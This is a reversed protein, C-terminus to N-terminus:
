RRRGDEDLLIEDCQETTKNYDSNNRECKKARLKDQDFSRLVFDEDQYVDYERGTWDIVNTIEENCHEKVEAEFDDDIDMNPESLNINASTRGCDFTITGKFRTPPTDDEPTFRAREFDFSVVIVGASVLSIFLIGVLITTLKKMKNHVYVLEM